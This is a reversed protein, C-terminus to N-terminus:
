AKFPQPFKMGDLINVIEPRSRMWHSFKTRYNDHKCEMLYACISILFFYRILFNKGKGIFRPKNRPLAQEALVQMEFVVERLNQMAGCLDIMRDTVRKVNAGDPLVRTLAKVVPYWGGKLAADHRARAEERERRAAERAPDAGARRGGAGDDDDDSSDDSTGTGTGGTTASQKTELLEPAEAAALDDIRVKVRGTVHFWLCAVIMGTTTRGRGMQCNTVVCMRADPHGAARARDVAAGATELHAVIADVVEPMPAQEDTVPTRCYTVQRHTGDGLASWRAQVRRTQLLWAESATLVGGYQPPLILARPSGAPSEEDGGAGASASSAVDDDGAGGPTGGAATPSKLPTVQARILADMETRATSVLPMAGGAGAAGVSAGTGASGQGQPPLGVWEAFLNGDADEDHLLIRGGWRRAESLTDRKLQKEMAEVRRVNIGTHELNAYPRAHDRLVFPRGDAYVVPEERLNLWVVHTFGLPAASAEDRAAAVAPPTGDPGLATLHSLLGELGALTPIGTGAVPFPSALRFNIAGQCVGALRSNEIGAFADSKLISGRGLVHGNRAEYIPAFPDHAYGPDMAVAADPAARAHELLMSLEPRGALWQSFKPYVFPQQLLVGGRTERDAVANASLSLAEAFIPDAADDRMRARQEAAPLAAFQPRVKLYVTLAHAVAHAERAYSRERLYANFIILIAYSELYKVARLTREETDRAAAATTSEEAAADAISDRLNCESGCLDVIVDLEEKVSRGRRLVRTLQLIARHM